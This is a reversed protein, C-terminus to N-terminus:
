RASRRSRRSATPLGASSMSRARKARAATRTTRISASRRGSTSTAARRSTSSRRCSASSPTRCRTSSFRAASSAQAIRRLAAGLVRPQPRRRPRRRDRRGRRRVHPRPDRQRRAALVPEADRAREARQAARRRRCVRLAAPPVRGDVARGAVAGELRRLDAARGSRHQRRPEARSLVVLRSPDQYPLQNLLVAKIVSFIATNTGIGLVLTLIAVAAFTPQRALSRVAYRIDGLVNGM